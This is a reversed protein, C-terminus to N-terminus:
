EELVRPKLSILATNAQADHRRSYFQRNVRSKINFATSFEETLMQQVMSMQDGQPIVLSIMSTGAGRHSDLTKVLRKIKWAEMEFKSQQMRLYPQIDLPFAM